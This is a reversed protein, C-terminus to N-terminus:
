EASWKGAETIVELGEDVADILPMPSLTHRCNYGGLYASVPKPQGDGNDLKELAGLTYAKGIHESCFPRIKMDDPGTYVYVYVEGTVQSAQETAALTVQRGAAMIASDAAAQARSFTTDLINAIENIVDQLNSGTTIGARMAAAIEENAARFTATIDTLQGSVIAELQSVANGNFDGLNVERAIDQAEAAANAEVTTVTPQLGERIMIALIQQRVRSATALSEKTRSLRASDGEKSLEMLLAAIRRNLIGRLENLQDRARDAFRGAM